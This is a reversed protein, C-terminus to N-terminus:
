ISLSMEKLCVTLMSIDLALPEVGNMIWLGIM